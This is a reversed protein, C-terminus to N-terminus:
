EDPYKMKISRILSEKNLNPIVAGRLHLIEEAMVHGSKLCTLWEWGWYWGAVWGALSADGAGTSDTVKVPNSHLQIIKDRNLFLSGKEGQRIWINDVGRNLLESSDMRNEGSKEIIATMEDENPTLMFVGSLDLGSLKRVKIVSVTEIILPIKSTRSFQIIWELSATNINTDAIILRAGSLIDKKQNLWSVDLYKETIDACAAVYLTGDPDLISTYSGTSEDVYLISDTNVGAESCHKTLWKGNPDRGLVTVLHTNIGLMALHHAINRAVGGPQRSLTAPNSTALIIDKSCSYLEDVLSGGICVIHSM